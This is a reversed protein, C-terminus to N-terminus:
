KRLRNPLEHSSWDKGEALDVGIYVEKFCFTNDPSFSCNQEFCKDYYKCDNEKCNLGNTKDM